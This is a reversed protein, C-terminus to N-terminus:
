SLVGATAIVVVYVFAPDFDIVKFLFQIVISTVISSLNGIFDFLGGTLGFTERVGFFPLSEM